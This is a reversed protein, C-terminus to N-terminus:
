LGGSALVCANERMVKTLMTDIKGQHDSSATKVTAGTEVSVMVTNLTYTSGIKGVSGYVMYKVSLMQGAEIACDTDTCNDSFAFEQEKLIANMKSRDVLTHRKLNALESAFRNSLIKAEGRTVGESADFNLVACTSRKDAPLPEPVLIDERVTTRPGVKPKAKKLAVRIADQKRALREIASRFADNAIKEVAQSIAEGTTGATISRGRGQTDFKESFVHRDFRSVTLQSHGIGDIHFPTVIFLTALSIPMYHMEMYAEFDLDLYLEVSTDATPSSGISVERFLGSDQFSRALAAAMNSALKNAHPQPIASKITLTLAASDAIPQDALKTTPGQLTIKDLEGMNQYSMPMSVCGSSCAALVLLCLLLRKM